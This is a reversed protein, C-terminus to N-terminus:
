RIVPPDGRGAQISDDVIIGTRGLKVKHMIVQMFGKAYLM